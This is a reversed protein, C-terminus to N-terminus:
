VRRRAAELTEAPPLKNLLKLYLTRFPLPKDRDIAWAINLNQPKGAWIVAAARSNVAPDLLQEVKTLNFQKLRAAGLAGLMNIQYLGISDENYFGGGPKPVCDACRRSPDRGSERWAIAVMQRAVASPFGADRALNYVVQISLQM